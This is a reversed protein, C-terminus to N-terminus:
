PKPDKDSSDEEIIALYPKSATDTLTKKKEIQPNGNKQADSNDEDVDYYGLGIRSGGQQLSAPILFLSVM